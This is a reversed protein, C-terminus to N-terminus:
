SFIPYPLSQWMKQSPSSPGWRGCHLRSWPGGGHWTGDQDMWGNPWLLCPGFIQPSRGRKHFPCRPGQRVCLRRPWPRGGYWTANQDMCGNRWLLYPGFIPLPSHGKPPTPSAPDGDLVIHGPGLGVQKGLKMKIRGVMQGCYVLMVSLVSLVVTRYCLAFPKVFPEGLFGWEFDWWSSKCCKEETVKFKSRQLQGLFHSTSRNHWINLDFTVTWVCLCVRSIASVPVNSHKAFMTMTTAM